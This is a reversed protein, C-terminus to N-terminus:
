RFGPWLSKEPLDLVSASGIKLDLATGEVTLGFAARACVEIERSTLGLSLAEFRSELEAVTLKGTMSQVLECTGQHSLCFWGPSIPWFSFNSM